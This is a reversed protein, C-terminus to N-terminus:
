RVENIKTNDHYNTLYNTTAADQNKTPDSINKIKHSNTDINGDM